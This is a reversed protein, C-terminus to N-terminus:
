KEWKTVDNAYHQKVQAIISGLQAEARVLSEHMVKDTVRGAHVVSENVNKMFDKFMTFTEISYGVERHKFHCSAITFAGLGKRKHASLKLYLDMGKGNNEAKALLYEM